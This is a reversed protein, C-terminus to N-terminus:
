SGFDVVYCHGINKERGQTVVQTYHGALKLARLVDALDYVYPDTGMIIVHRQKCQEILEGISIEKEDPLDGMLVITAPKGYHEGRTQISNFISGARVRALKLKILEAILDPKDTATM